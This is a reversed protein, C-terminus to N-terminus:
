EAAALHITVEFGRPQRNRCSVTGCCSEVCSKVIALGLGAGGTQRTRAEEPRYFPEFIQALAAEPIGPGSDAVTIAVNQGDRIARLSIPTGTGAYRVANRLLNALSRQLLGENAMVRLGAGVEVQVAAVAERAIVREVLGAVGVAALPTEGPNLGAKSFSLLEAVLSSMEQLEERLVAVHHQQKDSSNQELIGLAFQVRAIPASLEHAIDGLFRKQGRVFGSLRGALEHIRSGLLGVEDSRAAPLRADFNGAAIAETMRTLQGISRTLGHMFPWWCLASVALVCLTVAVLPMLEFFLENNLLSPSHVIFLAEGEAQVERRVPMLIAAWYGDAMATVAVPPPPRRGPARGKREGPPPGDRDEEPPGGRRGKPPPGKRRPGPPGKIRRLLEEPVTVGRETLPRGRMDTLYLEAKLRQGNQLLVEDPEDSMSLELGVRHAVGMLRDHAPALLLREPGGGIQFAMFALLIVALLSINLLALLAIRRTLSM